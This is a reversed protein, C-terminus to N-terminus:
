WTLCNEERHKFNANALLLRSGSCLQSLPNDNDTKQAAVSYIGGLHREIQNLKDIQASFNGVVIVAESRKAKRLNFLKRYFQDQVEDTSCDTPTYASVVCIYRSTNRDKRTRTTRNLRVACLRSDVLIWHLLAQEAKSSLVM